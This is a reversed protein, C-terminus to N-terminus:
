PVGEYLYTRIRAVTAPNRPGQEREEEQWYKEDEMRTRIDSKCTSLYEAEQAEVDQVQENEEEEEEEEDQRSRRRRM